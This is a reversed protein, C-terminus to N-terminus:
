VIKFAFIFFLYRITFFYVFLLKIFICSLMLLVISFDIIYVINFDIFLVDVIIIITLFNFAFLSSFYLFLYFNNNDFIVILRLILYCLTTSYVIEIFITLSSFIDCSKCVFM